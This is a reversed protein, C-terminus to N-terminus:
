KKGWAKRGESNTHKVSEAVNWGGEDSYKPSVSESGKRYNGGPPSYHNRTTSGSASASGRQPSHYKDRFTNSFNRGVKGPPSFREVREKERPLVIRHRSFFIEITGGKPKTLNARRLFYEMFAADHSGDCFTIIAKVESNPPTFCTYEYPQLKEFTIIYPSCEVEQLLDKIEQTKIVKEYNEPLASSVLIDPSLKFTQNSKTASTIKNIEVQIKNFNLSINKRPMEKNNHNINFFPVFTKVTILTEEKEGEQEDDDFDAWCKKGSILVPKSPALVAKKESGDSNLGLFYRALIKSKLYIFVTGTFIIDEGTRKEKMSFTFFSDEERISPCEESFLRVIEEINEIICDSIDNPIVCEDNPFRVPFTSEIFNDRTEIESPDAM